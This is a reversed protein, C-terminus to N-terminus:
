KQGFGKAGIIRQSVLVAASVRSNFAIDAAAAFTEGVKGQETVTMTRAIGFGKAVAAIDTRGATLGRQRGTEAFKENDLM